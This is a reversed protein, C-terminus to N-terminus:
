RRALLRGTAYVLRGKRYHHAITTVWCVIQRQHTPPNEDHKSRALLRPSLGLRAAYLAAVVVFLAGSVCDVLFVVPRVRGRGLGTGNSARSGTGISAPSPVGNPVKKWASAFRWDGDASVDAGDNTRMM